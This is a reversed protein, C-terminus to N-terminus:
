RVAKVVAALRACAKLGTGHAIRRPLGHGRLDVFQGADLALHFPRRLSEWGVMWATLTEPWLTFREYSLRLSLPIPMRMCIFNTAERARLLRADLISEPSTPTARYPRYLRPTCGTVLMLREASRAPDDSTPRTPDFGLAGLEHTAAIRRTLAPAASAFAGSVFVTARVGLTSLIDLVREAGLEGISQARRPPLTGGGGPPQWAAVDISLVLRRADAGAARSDNTSTAHQHATNRPLFADRPRFADRPNLALDRLSAHTSPRDDMLANAESRAAAVTWRTM